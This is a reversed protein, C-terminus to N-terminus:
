KQSCPPVPTAASGTVRAALRELLSGVDPASRLDALARPSELIEWLQMLAPLHSESDVAGLAIVLDVPDHEPHGFYVPTRLRVLAMGLERVGDEPRAHPVAVGPVVVVYPGLERVTRLMAEVYRGEALGAKVLLSGAAAVAEEWTRAAADVAVTAPTPPPM